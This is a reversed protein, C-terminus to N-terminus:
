PWNNKFLGDAHWLLSGDKGSYMYCRGVKEGNGDPYLPDFVIMDDCGDLNVDSGSAMSMGWWETASKPREIDYPLGDQGFTPVPVLLLM